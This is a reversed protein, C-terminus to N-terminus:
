GQLSRNSKGFRIQCLLMLGLIAIVCASVAGIFNEQIGLVVQIQSSIAFGINRIVEAVNQYGDGYKFIVGSLVGCANETCEVFMNAIQNTIDQVSCIWSFVIGRQIVNFIQIIIPYWSVSIESGENKQIKSIINRLSIWYALDMISIILIIMLAVVNFEGNMVVILISVYVLLHIVCKASLTGKLLSVSKIEIRNENSCCYIKWLGLCTLVSLIHVVFNWGTFDTFLDLLLNFTYFTCFLSYIKGTVIKTNGANAMKKIIKKNSQEENVYLETREKNELNKGCKICYRYGEKVAEGCEPCYKQEKELKNKSFVALTGENESKEEDFIEAGCYPCRMTHDLIENGCKLCKKM